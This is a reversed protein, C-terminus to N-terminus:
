VSKIKGRRDRISDLIKGVDKDTHSFKDEIVERVRSDRPIFRAKFPKPRVAFFDNLAMDDVEMEQGQDNLGKRIDFAWLVRAIVFFLSQKAIHQGSCIRRGFGFAVMPLNPDELWREPRFVEPDGYVKKDTMISWHSGMVICGKPIRYGNYTDEKLNSHPIGAVVLPRWRLVENMYATVYPLHPSDEWGPLRDRGVVADLEEQAIRAKEPHNVSAMVFMELTQGTTDLAADSLVGADFAIELDDMGQAERSTKLAKTWNWSSSALAKAMNSRHLASEFEFWKQATRKWPALAVPLRNLFPFLDVMWAGQKMAELFNRQVQHAKRLEEEQGTIIRFGFVLSYAVSASFRHMLHVFDDRELFDRVLHCSELDQIPTVTRSASINLLPAEMRQHRRYAEDYPRLLLHMGKYLCDGAMPLHPRSSYNASRQDLLAHATEYEGLVILTDKGFQLKYIPGYQLTWEHFQKWAEATPAQHLNGIIPLAPPGPPLPFSKKNRSFLLRGLLVFLILSVFLPLFSMEAM